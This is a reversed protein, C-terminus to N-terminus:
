KSTKLSRDGIFSLGCHNKYPETELRMNMLYVARKLGEDGDGRGKM